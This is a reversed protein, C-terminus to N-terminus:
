RPSAPAGLRDPQPGQGGPPLASPLHGCRVPRPRHHVRGRERRRLHPQPVPREAPDARERSARRVPVPHAHGGRDRDVRDDIALGLLLEDRRPEHLSRDGVAGRTLVAAGLYDIRHHVHETRPQFAVAIVALAILGLPLNVYFIWRWTLNDVFFGGLLPGIVTAVGFVAGFFGQYRGRDRPPIIDGVVAMATVLLGGGGLGQLARFAILETMSQSQGCLASGILFLVIAVQLVIKRGYLDGLKGYLPGSVTSALLYATVVWSLHSLGGLDGVITPLATSVITQDLSALLLVLLLAGFILRVRPAETSQPGGVDAAGLTAESASM